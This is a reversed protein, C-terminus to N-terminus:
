FDFESVDAIPTEVKPAAPKVTRQTNNTIKLERAALGNKIEERTICGASGQHIPDKSGGQILREKTFRTTYQVENGRGFFGSDVEHEERYSANILDGKLTVTDGTKYNTTVYNAIGNEAPAVFGIRNVSGDWTPMIGEVLLRGTESGDKVEKDIKNLYVDCTFEAHPTFGDNDTVTKFGAKFGKLLLASTEREGQRTVYEDFRAMVWVKSSANAATAFNASPTSKLFSAISITNEPLLSYLSDYDKSVSGDKKLEPVYFQVKHSNVDDTAIIISGRIVKMGQSNTIQELLNEKLYGVIHVSNQRSTKEQAM